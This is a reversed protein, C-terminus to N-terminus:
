GVTMSVIPSTTPGPSGGAPEVTVALTDALDVATVVSAEDTMVAVSQPSSGSPIRWLQYARDAPLPPMDQFSVAAAGLTASQSVTMAGGGDIPVSSERSDPEDLVQQATIAGSGGDPRDVVVALWSGAGVAVILAAAALLWRLPWRDGSERRTLPRVQPDLQDLARMLAAELRAPPPVADTVTMAATTEQIRRVAARFEAATDPGAADLWDDVARRQDADLADLAYPYAEDLWPRPTRRETGSM